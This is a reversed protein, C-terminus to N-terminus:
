RLNKTLWVIVSQLLNTWHAYVQDVVPVIVTIHASVTHVLEMKMWKYTDVPGVLYKPYQTLKDPHVKGPGHQALEILKYLPPLDTHSPDTAPRWDLKNGGHLM